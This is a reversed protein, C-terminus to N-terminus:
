VKWNELGSVCLKFTNTFKQHSNEYYKLFFGVSHGGCIQVGSKRLVIMITKAMKDISLSAYYSSSGISPFASSTVCAHLM